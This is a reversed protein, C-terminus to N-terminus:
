RLHLYYELLSFYENDVLLIGYKKEIPYFIDKLISLEKMYKEFDIVKSTEYHNDIKINDILIATHMIVGILENRNLEVKLATQISNNLSIIDDFLLGGDVNKLEAQLSQRIKFGISADQILEKIKVVGDGNIIDNVNFQPCPYDVSFTSVIAIIQYKEAINSIQQKESNKDTLQLSIIDVFSFTESLYCDLINKLYTATGHGTLCCTLIAFPRNSTNFIINKVNNNNNNMISLENCGFFEFNVKLLDNYIIKLENGLLSKRAAELVYITSVLPLSLISVNLKSELFKDIQLFSGMDVLCLIDEGNNIPSLTECVQTMIELPKKNLPADIGIVSDTKLLQNVTKAMSTATSDGHAIVVVQVNNRKRKKNNENTHIFFSVINNAESYPLQIKEAFSIMQLCHVAVLFEKRYNIQFELNIEEELYNSNNKNKFREILHHLHLIFGMTVNQDWNLSLKSLIYAIVENITEMRRSEIITELPLLEHKEESNVFTSFYNSIEQEMILKMNESAIQDNTLQSVKHKLLTYITNQDSDSNKEPSFCLMEKSFFDSQTRLLRHETKNWFGYTINKPLDDSTIEINSKTGILYESYAKACLLQIDSQLQGINNPCEYYLLSVFVDSSIYVKKNLNKSENEFFTQILNTREEETRHALNPIEIIMPMRRRFPAVLTSIIAESTAGIIRVKAKRQVESEGLRRYIGRDIFTFLIEQGEQPLNHIEDLFLMGNNALEILGQKDSDAGTYAGKKVGFLMGMLLEPNKSYDACNFLIFPSDSSLTKTEIAFQHMLQAFHSKGVGTEGIILTNIGNPPYLISSKAQGIAKKLSPNNLEFEQLYSTEKESFFYIVPKGKKKIIKGEKVLQNLIRSVNERSIDLKVSISQTDIGNESSKILEIIKQSRKM